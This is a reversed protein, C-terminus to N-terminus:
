KTRLSKVPNAVAAKIAQFSVTLLAILVAFLGAIVFVWLKIDIRYAFGRLWNQMIYWSIPVSIVISFLVLKLFDESLLQVIGLVSSGLVKRVGIEKRRQEATFASLGFLGLCSIIVALVAFIQSLHEVLQESRFRENFADDVFRYEFPFGPNQTKLVAEIKTLTKNIAVGAAPKIYMYHAEEAQHYFMVPDSKGYMNGYIFDKVVGNITLIQDNHNITNGIVQDTKMLKAFSESILVNASDAAQSFGFGKGEIIEMGATNFFQPTVTRVSILIDADAPKGQWNVGSTNNGASLIQSNVLAVNEVLGSSKLEQEISKFNKIINGNAIPIEILNEKVMGLNRNKVHQVQQYVLLTSIIFIISTSFQIVVLTKRIFSASGSQRRSGKLVDIPKFSSLYFAPYLGSILGCFLIIVLMPIFHIPKELALSLNKDILLNFHPILLILLFISLIGSIFATMVAETLFQFILQKRGSGLAKRMGVENARKESRATSLNMFNICAILMIFLAVIAFLNVFLIRGGASEGNEFSETGRLHWDELAHLFFVSDKEGFTKFVFDRVGKDVTKFDSNPALKVFTNAFNNGYEKTWHNDVEFNRFPVLWQFTYTVNAPLNAVVGTVKFDETNNIKINEGLAPSNKGFLQDAMTRTIMISKIDTLANRANGELFDFKFIDLYEPDVYSGRKNFSKDKVNLLFNSEKVRSAFDIGPITRKLDSALPGPTAQSLTRWEGDYEQNSPVEYILESDSFYNNYNLEDEVWLFILAACTIGIALGFINLASYGKSKWLNRWAIKIYNGIM